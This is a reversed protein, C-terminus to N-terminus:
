NRTACPLMLIKVQCVNATGAPSKPTIWNEPNKTIATQGPEIPSPFVRRGSVPISSVLSAFGNYSFTYDYLIQGGGVQNVAANHKEKLYGVYKLTDAAFPDVKKGIGPMTAKYGKIDGEYAVVPKDSMQVIYVQDTSELKGSNNAWASSASTFTISFTLALIAIIRFVVLTRKM